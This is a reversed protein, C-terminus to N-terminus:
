QSKKNPFFPLPTIWFRRISPHVFKFVKVVERIIALFKSTEVTFFQGNHAIRQSLRFYKHLPLFYTHFGAKTAYVDNHYDFLHAKLM